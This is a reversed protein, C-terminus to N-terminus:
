LGAGFPAHKRMEVGITGCPLGMNFLLQLGAGVQLNNIFQGWLYIGDFNSKLTSFKNPFQLCFQIPPVVVIETPNSPTAIMVM